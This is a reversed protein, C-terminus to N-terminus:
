RDREVLVLDTRSLATEGDQRVTEIDFEVLGKSEDWDDKDGITASARLEDGGFVPVRWRLDDVGVAGVVAVDELLGDVLLAMTIAATHWGSAILDGFAGESAAARDVHFSQPDYQTAFDVIEDETVTYSGLEHTEGVPLDDFYTTSM